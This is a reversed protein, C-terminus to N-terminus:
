KDTDESVEINPTEQEQPEQPQAEPVKNDEEVTINQPPEEPKEQPKVQPQPAPQPAPAIKPAPAPVPQPAPQAAPQPQAQPQPVPIVVPQPQPQPQPAQQPQGYYPQQPQPQGYYPQGQQPQGNYPPQGQPGYYPQGQPGYYPQGQPPQQGYYPQGQPQGNYPPQGYYPQGQPGYYPQGPQGYYPQQGQPQDQGPKYLKRGKFCVSHTISICIALVFVGALEAIPWYYVNILITEPSIKLIQGYFYLYAMFLGFSLLFFVFTFWALVRSTRPLALKGNVLWILGVILEFVAFVVATALLVSIALEVFPHFQCLFKLTANDGGNDIYMQFYSLFETLNDDFTDLYPIPYQKLGLNVYDFGKYDLAPYGEKAYSFIPLFAFAVFCAALLICFIGTLQTGFSFRRYTKKRKTAM